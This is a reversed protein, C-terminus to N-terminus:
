RYKKKNKLKLTESLDCRNILLDMSVFIDLPSILFNSRIFMIMEFGIRFNANDLYTEIQRQM